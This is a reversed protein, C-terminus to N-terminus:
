KGVEKIKLQLSMIKYLQSACNCAANVTSPNVKEKTVEKMLHLLHGAINRSLSKSQKRGEDLMKPSDSYGVLRTEDKNGSNVTSL